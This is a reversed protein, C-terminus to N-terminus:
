ADLGLSSSLAAHTSKIPASDRVLLVTAAKAAAVNHHAAATAIKALDTAGKTLALALQQQTILTRGSAGTLKSLTVASNATRTALKAFAIAVQADTQKGAGGVETGIDNGIKSIQASVPTYQMKFSPSAAGAPAASVVVAAVSVLAIM